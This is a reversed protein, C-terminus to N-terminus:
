RCRGVLVTVADGEFSSAAVDLQGDKNVDGVALNYAGPGARFPSGPAPVFGRGDGLLVTVSSDFPPLQNNVTAALIDAKKDRNIDAVVVAFAQTGLIYPSAPAPAFAGNGDNLLVSLRNSSYSIVVDLHQDSNIHALTVIRPDSSVILPSGFADKFAGTGDGRWTV